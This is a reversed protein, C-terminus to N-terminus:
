VDEGSTAVLHWNPDNGRVDRAFTWIDTVDRANAPDGEVTAGSANVTSSILQVLFSVTIEAMHGKLAAHVIKVDKYGVVTSKVTEQRTERDAIVHEFAAFVESSLLPRLADRDGKAFATVIMEHAKKAGAVFHDADFNRDAQKVELLSREVEDLPKAAGDAAVATRDPIPVVNGPANGGIRRFREQPERENGTRRGLVTYLRFLVVCAVMAAVVIVLLQANAM